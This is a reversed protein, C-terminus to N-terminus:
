EIKGLKSRVVNWHVPCSRGGCMLPFFMKRSVLVFEISAKEIIILNDSNQVFFQALVGYVVDSVM